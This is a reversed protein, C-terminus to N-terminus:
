LCGVEEFVKCMKPFQIAIWDVMEENKAWAEVNNSNVSLGSENFFAHVIEHRLVKSKYLKQGKEDLDFYKKESMDAVVILKNEEDCYGALKNEQMYEDESVKHVELTYETGLINVSSKM